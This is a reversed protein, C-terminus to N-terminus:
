KNNELKSCLLYFYSVAKQLEELNTTTYLGKNNEDLFKEITNNFEEVEEKSYNDLVTYDM